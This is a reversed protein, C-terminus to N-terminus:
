RFKGLILESSEYYGFGGYDSYKGPNDDLAGEIKAIGNFIDHTGLSM